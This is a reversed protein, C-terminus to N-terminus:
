NFFSDREISLQNLKISVNRMPSFNLQDNHSHTREKNNDLLWLNLMTQQASVDEGEVVSSPHLSLLSSTETEDESISQM